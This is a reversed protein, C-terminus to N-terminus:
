PVNTEAKLQARVMERVVDEVELTHHWGLVKHARDPNGHSQRIDSPRYLKPNINV